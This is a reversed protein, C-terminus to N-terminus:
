CDIVHNIQVFIASGLYIDPHLVSTTVIQNCLYLNTKNLTYGYKLKHATAKCGHVAVNATFMLIKKRLLLGHLTAPCSSIQLFDNKVLLDM